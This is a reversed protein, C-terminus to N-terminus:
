AKTGILLFSVISMTYCIHLAHDLSLWSYASGSRAFFPGLQPM